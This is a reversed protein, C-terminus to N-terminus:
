WHHYPTFTIVGTIFGVFANAKRSPFFSGHGCDHSIIFIRVLFGAAVVALPVALWLSVKSALYMLYWLALYPILTNTLQWLGPGLAPKQYKAVVEKWPPRTSKVQDTSAQKNSMIIYDGSLASM